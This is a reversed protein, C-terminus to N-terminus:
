FKLEARGLCIECALKTVDCCCVGLCVSRWGWDGGVDAGGGIDTACCDYPPVLKPYVGVVVGCDVWYWCWCSSGCKGVVRVWIALRMEALIREGVTESVSSM